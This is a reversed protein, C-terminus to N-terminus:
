TDLNMRIRWHKPLYNNIRRPLVKSWGLCHNEHSVTHWGTRATDVTITEKKLFRLATAREVSLTPYTHRLQAALALEHHPILGKQKWEGITLGIEYTRLHSILQQISIWWHRAIAAIHQKHNTFFQLDSSDPLLADIKEQEKKSLTATTNSARRNKKSRTAEYEHTNRQRFGSFFFGEGRVRHPYCQYGKNSASEITTIGWNPPLTCDLNELDFSEQLWKVNEINEKQNYTCTCYLLIGNPKVLAQAGALIRRQRSSCQAVADTSWHQSAAADKRFLGEGSCPADVVVIDFFGALPAFDAVDHNTLVKNLTGWRQLNEKLITYRSKIVENSVILHQSGLQSLLTSKGGPAACLDLIKLPRKNTGIWQQLAAIILMSSAEQVYYAGAHFAPDLT